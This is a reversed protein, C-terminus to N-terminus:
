GSKAWDWFTKMFSIFDQAADTGKVTFGKVWGLRRLETLIAEAENGTKIKRVMDKAALDNVRVAAKKQPIGDRLWKFAVEMAEGETKKKTSLPPLYKGTEDKFSVLYCPRDHRKFNFLPLCEYTCRVVSM